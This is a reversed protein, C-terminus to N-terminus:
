DWPGGPRSGPGLAATMNGRSVCSFMMDWEQCRAWTCVASARVELVWPATRAATHEGSAPFARGGRGWSELAARSSHAASRLDAWTHPWRRRPHSGVASSLAPQFHLGGVRTRLGTGAGDRFGHASTITRSHSAWTAWSGAPGLEPLPTLAQRTGRCCGQATLVSGVGGPAGAGFRVPDASDLGGQDGGLRDQHVFGASPLFTSGM